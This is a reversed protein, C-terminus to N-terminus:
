SPASTEWTSSTTALLEEAHENAVSSDPSGSLMRSVEVVREDNSLVRAQSATMGSRTSKDIVIHSGTYSAVQALHTVVFVQGASGLSALARGVARATGGGIGADVEDFVQIPPGGALVLRLALMTRSLEGGSAGKGVPLLPLGPNPALLIAVSDGAPGDVGVEVTANAMSLHALEREVARALPVAAEKRIQEIEAAIHQEETVAAGREAMLSDVKVGHSELEDLQSQLDATYAMVDTLTPGYKRKLEVILSLRERVHERAEPDDTIDESISRLASSLDALQDQVAVIQTQM